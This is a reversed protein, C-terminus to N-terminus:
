TLTQKYKWVYGGATKYYKVNNCCRNIGTSSVGTKREADLSSLYTNVYVGNKTYQEIPESLKDNEYLSKSLNKNHNGYNNNYKQNCWELNEVRNNTKDEDIHNICPLNQPNEIFAQAVLRHILYTKSVKNKYLNVCKYGVNQTGRKLNKGSYSSKVNGLNSVQYLNEYGVVDRWIETMRM